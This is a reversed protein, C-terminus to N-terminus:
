GVAQSALSFVKIESDGCSPSGRWMTKVSGVHPLGAGKLWSALGPATAPIDLRVFGGARVAAASGLAIATLESEAVIPGVLKGRGFDRWLVYGGIVGGRQAVFGQSVTELATLLNHRDEGTARRDLTRVTARDSGTMPRISADIEFPAADRPLVGQYICIDGKAVFGLSEYLRLGDLTAYLLVRRQGVATMISELLRRGIGSKQHIPSVIVMGLTAFCDGFSWWLGVGQLVDNANVAVIGHGISSM